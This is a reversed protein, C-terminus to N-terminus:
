PEDGVSTCKSSMPTVSLCPASPVRGEHSALAQRLVRLPLLSGPTVSVALLDSLTPGAQLEPTNM